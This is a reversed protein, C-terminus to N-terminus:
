ITVVRLPQISLRFIMQIPYSSRNARPCANARATPESM